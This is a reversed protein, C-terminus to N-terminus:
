FLFVPFVLHDSSQDSVQDESPRNVWSKVSLRSYVDQTTPYILELEVHDEDPPKIWSGVSLCSYMHVLHKSLGIQSKIKVLGIPGFGLV